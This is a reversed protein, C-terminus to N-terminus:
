TNSDYPLPMKTLLSNEAEAMKEVAPGLNQIGRETIKQYTIKKVFSDLSVGSFALAARNTPLTHNTGSAYDGASEPAYNGLFVSGANIIKEAVKEANKVSLILHEAAYQNLINIAHVENDAVIAISNELAEAAIRKRPLEELQIEIEKLVKQAVFHNTTVLLM